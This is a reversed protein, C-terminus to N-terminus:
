TANSSCIPNPHSDITKDHRSVKYFFSDLQKWSDGTEPYHLPDQRDCAIVFMLVLSAAEVDTQSM